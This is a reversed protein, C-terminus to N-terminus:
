EVLALRRRDRGPTRRFRVARDGDAALFAVRDLEVVLPDAAEVELDLFVLALQHEGVQLAGVAGADVAFVRLQADQPEAVHNRQPSRHQQEARAILDRVPQFLQAAVADGLSAIQHGLLQRLPDIRLRQRKSSCRPADSSKCLVSCM